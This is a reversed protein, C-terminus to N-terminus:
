CPQESLAAFASFLGRIQVGIGSSNKKYQLANVVVKM